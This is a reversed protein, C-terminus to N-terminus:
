PPPRKSYHLKERWRPNVLHIVDILGRPKFLVFLALLAGFVIEISLKIEKVGEQLVVILVGGLVSGAISATGGIVVSALQLVMQHLGFSEPGVFSLTGAYLVGAVGAYFGSLAFALAKYRFLDVGLSQAAVEHDRLAVFARGVPSRVLNSAFVLLLVCCIWSLYFMGHDPSIPLPSFDVGKLTFGSAGFTLAKWHMMVWITCQAFALTALALYIGSLRLAPLALLTGVAM